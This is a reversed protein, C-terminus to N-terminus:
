SATNRRRFDALRQQDQDVRAKLDALQANLWGSAQATAQIQSETEQERLRSSRM